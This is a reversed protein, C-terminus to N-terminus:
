IQGIIKGYIKSAQYITNGSIHKIRTIKINKEELLNLVKNSWKGNENVLELLIISYTRKWNMLINGKLLLMSLARDEREVEILSYERGDMITIKGIAYKRKTIEDSLKSFRKGKRGEPLNGITIEIDKINPRGELLKILEIFEELEGQEEVDSINKFEIGKLINEGGQDATTRTQEDELIYKKTNEDEKIRRVKRGTKIKNIKPIREYEHSILLTNIEESSKTAGDAKSDLDRNSSTNKSIYIRKKAENTTVTEELSPHYINIETVNIRKKKLSVIELIRIYREKKEVRAKINFRDFLFDFKFEGMEWMSLGISNFMKLVKPNTIVWALHNIKENKLLNQEYQSTFHINLKSKEIEYIFYNELTDMELVRNLMFRDPALIARIIEIIPITYLIGKKSFNFTKSKTKDKFGAGWIEWDKEIYEARVGTLKIDIFEKNGLVEGNNLNGDTYYKDVALFHISAWDLMIKRTAKNGKFYTYIMWKNNYKFPEGVWILKANEGKEFPWDKAKIAVKGM